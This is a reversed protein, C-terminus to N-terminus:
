TMSACLPHSRARKTRLTSVVRAISPSQRQSQLFYHVSNQVVSQTLTTWNSGTMDNIRVLRKNVTDPVYIRGSQDVALTTLFSSFQGVGNGPSGYSTFNAGTMADIRVIRSNGSDM